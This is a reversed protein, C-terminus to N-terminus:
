RRGVFVLSRVGTPHDVLDAQIPTFAACLAELLRPDCVRGYRAAMRRTSEGDADYLDVVVIRAGAPLGRWITALMQAPDVQRPSLVHRCVVLDPWGSWAPGRTGAVLDGDRVAADPFM